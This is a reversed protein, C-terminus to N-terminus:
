NIVGSALSPNKCKENLDIIGKGVNAAVQTLDRYKAATVTNMQELLQYESESSTLEM